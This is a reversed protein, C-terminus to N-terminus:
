QIKIMKPSTFNHLRASGPGITTWDDPMILHALACTPFLLPAQNEEQHVLYKLLNELGPNHGIIMVREAQPSDSLINLLDDIEALYLNEITVSSASCENCIRKLTQQARVAPSVLILDPQIQQSNLWKAMKLANKKGRSSLPREIDVLSDDQWDSKAHRMLMLERLKGPM